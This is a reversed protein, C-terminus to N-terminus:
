QRPASPSLYDQQLSKAIQQDSVQYSGNQVAQRLPAVREQRIEPVSSLSSSLKTYTVGDSSLDAHDSQIQGASSSTKPASSTGASGVGESATAQTGTLMQDPNIRM